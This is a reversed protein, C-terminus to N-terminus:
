PLPSPLLAQISPVPHPPPRFVLMHRPGGSPAPAASSGTFVRLGAPGQQGPAGQGGQAGQLGSPDLGEMPAEPPASPALSAPPASGSRRAARQTARLSAIRDAEAARARWGKQTPM